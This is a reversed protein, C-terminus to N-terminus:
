NEDKDRKRKPLHPFIEAVVDRAIRDREEQTLVEDFDELRM